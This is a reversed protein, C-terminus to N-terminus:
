AGGNQKKIEVMDTFHILDGTYASIELQYQNRWQGGEEEPPLLFLVSYFEHEATEDEPFCDVWFEFDLTYIALDEETCSLYKCLYAKAREAIIETDSHRNDPVGRRPGQNHYVYKNYFFAKEEFTWEFFEGHREVTLDLADDFDMEADPDFDFDSSIM